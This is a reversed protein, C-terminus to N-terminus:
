ATANERVFVYANRWKYLVMAQFLNGQFVFSRMGTNEITM